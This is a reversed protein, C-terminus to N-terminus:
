ETIKILRGDAPIKDGQRLVLVDGVTVLRSDIVKQTGDRIVTARYQLTGMLQRLVHSVKLEQFFGIGANLLVAVAIIVADLADNLVLSILAAGILILILPNRFQNLFIRFPGEGNQEPIENKGTEEIRRQAKAESLGDPSSGTIEIVEQVSQAHWNKDEM